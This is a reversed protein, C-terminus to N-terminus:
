PRDGKDQILERWVNRGPEPAPPRQNKELVACGGLFLILLAALM